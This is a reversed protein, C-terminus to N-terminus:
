LCHFGEPLQFCYKVLGTSELALFAGTPVPAPGTGHPSLEPLEQM